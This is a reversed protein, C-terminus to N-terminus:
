MLFVNNSVCTHYRLHLNYVNYTVLNGNEDFHIQFKLTLLFKIFVLLCM